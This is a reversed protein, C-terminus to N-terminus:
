IRITYTYLRADEIIPDQEQLDDMRDVETTLKQNVLVVDFSIILNHLRVRLKEKGERRIKKGALSVVGGGKRKRKAPTPDVTM